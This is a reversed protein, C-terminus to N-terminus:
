LPPQIFLYNTVNDMEKPTKSIEYSYKNPQVSGVIPSIIGFILSAFHRKIPITKGQSAGEGQCTNMQGGCGIWHLM